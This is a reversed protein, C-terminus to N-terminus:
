KLHREFFDLCAKNVRELYAKGGRSSEGGELARTLLPSALALDTLSFHGAGSQHLSYINESANFLAKYNRAYQAWEGLQDWSSDSYINLAPVPYPKDTWVFEGNKVGVIDYLFPAELAIVADVEVRQRPMALAASGGLSHGMVGIKHIDIIRYIGDADAAVRNLITDLVFNIDAVRVRLWKQYYAYSQQKDTKADERGLEMFYDPNLWAITGDDFRTWLAHYAHDISCIVYGYSALEVFLSENSTRTGLGGHSFIVLPHPATTNEPHWCEVNIKRFGGAASYTEIRNEDVLTFHVAGVRYNGTAQPIEYPPFILVPLLAAGLMMGLAVGISMRKVIERRRNNQFPVSM